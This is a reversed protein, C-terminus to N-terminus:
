GNLPFWDLLADDDEVPRGLDEFAEVGVITWRPGVRKVEIWGAVDTGNFSIEYRRIKERGKGPTAIIRDLSAERSLTMRSLHYVGSDLAALWSSLVRRASERTLAILPSTAGDKFATKIDALVRSKKNGKKLQQMQRRVSLSDRRRDVAVRRWDVSNSSSEVGVAHVPTGPRGQPESPQDPKVFERGGYRASRDGECGSTALVFLFPLVVNRKM